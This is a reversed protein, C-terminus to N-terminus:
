LMLMSSLVVLDKTLWCLQQEAGLFLMHAAGSMLHQRLSLLCHSSGTLLLYSPARGGDSANPGETRCGQLASYNIGFCFTLSLTPLPVPGHLIKGCSLMLTVRNCKSGHPISFFLGRPRAAQYPIETARHSVTILGLILNLQLPVPPALWM